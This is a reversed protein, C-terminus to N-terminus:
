FALKMNERTQVFLLKIYNLQSDATTRRTRICATM